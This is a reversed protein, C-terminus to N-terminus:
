KQYKNYINYLFVAASARTTQGKPNLRMGDGVILGEKVCSAMSPAAYGAVSSKDSFKDLVSTSSELKLEKLMNLARATLTVMDQRSINADPDFKNNGIGVTIGLKKAIALEKYYYAEKSIDDFSGDIKADVGLTRILSFLFDARTINTEPAFNNSDVGEKEDIGRLIDKSALVEIQNKAWSVANLDEFSKKVYAIAYNSFHTTTFTVNGTKADYRGSPVTVVNGSGDVYWIIIHEPDALEYATPKYPITVTVPANPNNWDTQKGDLKLMLQILPRDGVAKREADTLGSKDAVGISIEAKGSNAGTIETLMNGPIVLNGKETEFTLKHDGNTYVLTASPIELAYNNVGSIQPVKVVTNDGKSFSESLKGFDVTAKGSKTDVSVPISIEKNEGTTVTAQKDKPTDGAAGGSGGGGGGSNGASKVTVQAIVSLTTAPDTQEVGAPLSFTGTASYTGPTNRDYGTITWNLNVPHTISINDSINTTGPLRTIADMESTGYPVEINGVPQIHDIMIIRSFEAVITHPALVNSFTYESVAGVSSGDVKVDALRYGSEVTIEFRQNNGQAVAINGSPTISGGEGVSANINIPPLTELYIKGENLTTTFNVNDSFFHGADSATLTYGGKGEAALIASDSTPATKTTIGIPSSTVAGGVLIKTGDDLYVNKENGTITGGYYEFTCSAAKVYVGTGNGSILGDYMKLTCNANQSVATAPNNRLVADSLLKIESAGNQYILAGTGSNGGDLILNKISVSEGGGGVNFLIGSYGASRKIVRSGTLTVTGYFTAYSDSSYNDQVIVTYMTGNPIQSTVAKFEDWNGGGPIGNVHVPFGDNAADIRVWDSAKAYPVENDSIGTNLGNLLTGNYNLNTKDTAVLEDDKSAFSGISSITIYTEGDINSIGDTLGDNVTDSRLWYCDKILTDDYGERGLAAGVIGGSPYYPYNFSIGSVTGSNYSNRLESGNDILGILGGGPRYNRNSSVPGSNYCNRAVSDVYLCGAIGGVNKYKSTEHAEGTVAGGNYCNVVESFWVAGAIGGIEYKDALLDGDCAVTGISSCNEIKPLTDRPTNSFGIYESYGVIGGFRAQWIGLTDTSGEGAVSGSNHCGSILSNLGELQGAIGGASAEVSDNIDVVIKVDGSNSCNMISGQNNGTVGGVYIKDMIDASGRYYEVSAGGNSCIDLTGANAGVIGGTQSLGKVSGADALYCGKITGSNYGAVGGTYTGAGVIESISLILNEIRGGNNGFLGTYNTTGTINLGTISKYQGNFTGRFPTTTESGIPTWPQNNLNIDDTLIFYTDEYEEGDNVQEALYALHAGTSIQFPDDASGSGENFETASSGSWTDAGYVKAPLASVILMVAIITSILRNVKSISM